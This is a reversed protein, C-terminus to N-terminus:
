VDPDLGFAQEITARYEDRTLRSYGPRAEASPGDTGASGGTGSGTGGTGEGSTAGSGTGAGSTGGKGASGKGGGSGPRSTRDAGAPVGDITTSCGLLGLSAVAISPILLRPAAITAM